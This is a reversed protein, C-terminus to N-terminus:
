DVGNVQVRDTLFVARYRLDAFPLINAKRDIHVFPAWLEGDLRDLLLGLQEPRHYARILAAIKM